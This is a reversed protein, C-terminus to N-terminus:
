AMTYSASNREFVLVLVMRKMLGLETHISIGPGHCVCFGSSLGHEFYQYTDNM